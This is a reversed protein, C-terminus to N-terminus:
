KRLETDIYEGVEDKLMNMAEVAGISYAKILEARIVEAYGAPMDSFVKRIISVGDEAVERKRDDLKFTM